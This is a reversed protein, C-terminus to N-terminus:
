RIPLAYMLGRPNANWRANLGRALNLSSREGLNRDFIEGYNGVGAIADHAWTDSLGMMAGFGGQAGLLRQVGPDPSNEALDDVNAQTVGLEEALILASLTWRVIDAWQDDGRRVVPGLPEKSIVDPLIAHAQPNSMMTRAAALASVDGTFADCNEAVYAERAAEESAAMVPEYRLSRVSFYDRLNLATTSDSQVCIRAGDLEAASTLALSRRVLFGQGDYYNVGAFEMREGADRAMTWSTNRWLVDIRGDALAEFREGIALPVFRVADPDGLVAAATARCFDVDFGRWQGRNDTFAFGVLGEHVGCNLRGRRRVTALTESPEAADQALIPASEGDPAHREPERDGCAALVLLGTMLGARIARASM